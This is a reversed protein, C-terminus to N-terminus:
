PSEQFIEWDSKGDDAATFLIPISEGVDRLTCWPGRFDGPLRIPLELSATPGWIPKRVAKIGLQFAERLTM